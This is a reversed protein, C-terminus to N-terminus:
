PESAPFAPASPLPASRDVAGGFAAESPAPTGWWNERADVTYPGHNLVAWGNELIASGRLVPKADGMVALGAGNRNGRITTARIAAGAGGGVELGNMGNDALESFSIETTGATLRVGTAAHRQRVWRLLNAGSSAGEVQLATLYDGPSGTGSASGFSIPAASTGEARVRGGRVIIGQAKPGFLVTVGSTIWLLAREEVEFREAIRYPGFWPVLIGTTKLPGALPPKLIPLEVLPANGDPGDKIQSIDVWGSAAALVAEPETSGWFNGRADLLDGQVRNVVQPAGTPEIRNAQLVLRGAERIVGASTNRGVLSEVVELSGGLVRAGAGGNGSLGVAKLMGTGAKLVIGDGRSGEVRGGKWTLTAAPNVVEVGTGCAVMRGEVIEVAGAALQIGVAASEIRVHALAGDAGTTEFVVGPWTAEGASTEPSFVVPAAATGQAQLRGRIRLAGDRSLVQVGPEITLTAGALVTVPSSLVYPSADRYWTTPEAIEGAIATPGPAIAAAGVTASPPSENGAADVAVVRYHVRTLNTLGADRFEASKSEVVVEFPGLANASRLVRYSVVDSTTDAAWRLAIARDGPTATLSQPQAPPTTDIRITGRGDVREGRLGMADSLAGVVVVQPANDGPMVTYQGEYVGEAAEQLPLNPRLGVLDFTGRLGPPGVVRVRIVQGARRSEDAADSAVAAIQPPQLTRAAAPVPLTKVLERALDDATYLFEQDRLHWASAGAAALVGWPSTAGSIAHNRAVHSRQWLVKGSPVSVLEVSAGVAVQAYVVAFLPTYDTVEGRLVADVNLTKALVEPSATAAAAADGLSRALLDDTVFAKQVQYATSALQQQLTARVIDPARPRETKNVLPLIAIRQPFSSEASPLGVPRSGPLTATFCGSLVLGLAIKGLTWAFGAKGRLRM